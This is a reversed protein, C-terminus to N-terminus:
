DEPCGLSTCACNNPRSARLEVGATTDRWCPGPMAPWLSPDPSTRSGNAAAAGSASDADVVRQPQRSKTVSHAPKLTGEREDGDVLRDRPRNTFLRQRRSASRLLGLGTRAWFRLSGPRRSVQRPWCEDGSTIVAALPFSVLDQFRHSPPRSRSSCRTCSEINRDHHSTPLSIPASSSLPPSAVPPSWTTSGPAWAPGNGWAWGASALLCVRFRWGTRLWDSGAPWHNM